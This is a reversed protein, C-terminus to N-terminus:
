TDADLRPTDRHPWVAIMIGPGTSTAWQKLASLSVVRSDDEILGSDTMSDFSSRVLKDVDPKQAMHKKTNSKAQPMNYVLTVNVPGKIQRYEPDNKIADTVTRRWSRNDISADVLVARKNIIFSKKSGQPTAIGPIWITFMDSM